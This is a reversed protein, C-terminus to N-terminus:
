YRGNPNQYINNNIARKFPHIWGSQLTGSLIANEKKDFNEAEEFAIAMQREM